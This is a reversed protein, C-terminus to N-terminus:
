KLLHIGPEVRTQDRTADPGAPWPLSLFDKEVNLQVKGQLLDEKRKENWGADWVRVTEDSGESGTWSGSIIKKSDGSFAVFKVYGEHGNFVQLEDGNSVNWVRITGNDSGSVIKTGDPSFSVSRIRDEYGCLISCQEGTIANWVRATGDNSASVIKTNDPSFAVSRICDTHGELVHLEKGTVADWVRVTEDISGSVVKASDPSFAVVAVRNEHGALVCLEAGTLVNWIRATKDDSGSVIKSNDPSFTVSRIYDTHTKLIYIQNGTVTDWVRITGNDSGSVIKAGDPSFSVSRIWDEHGGLICCPEGTIANWVRATGDNSGSVIKTNDPSFAVSRIYHTHGPLVHLEEGTDMNWVRVTKEAGTVAKTGDESFAVCTTNKGDSAKISMCSLEGTLFTELFENRRESEDLNINLLANIVAFKKYIRKSHLREPSHAFNLLISIILHLVVFQYGDLPRAGTSFKEWVDYLRKISKLLFIRGESSSSIELLAKLRSIFSRVDFSEKGETSLSVSLKDLNDCAQEFLDPEINSSEVKKWEPPLHAKFDRGKGDYVSKHIMQGEVIQRGDGLHLRRITGEQTKYSLQRWPYFEALWWFGSLSNTTPKELYKEAKESGESFPKVNLGVIISEHIMWRLAPGYSNLNKNITNGGGIDSHSGSFWVEKTHPKLDLPSLSDGNEKSSPKPKPDRAVGGYVYEPLFKVRCEDLALAHRFYCVHKMGSTTLPLDKCPRVIGVSSVTDWVGVLHIHVDQRSFTTKFRWPMYEPSNEAPIESKSADTSDETQLYLEYAFPIQAANGKEILGVKEIMAALVRVQYAGRSFGFLFIRDGPQYMESLWRYADLLIKEFKTGFALEKVKHFWSKLSPSTPKPYAGIGSNYFTLQTTNKDLRCYLEVINTNRTGFKNSTGDICVVLNRKRGCKNSCTGVDARNPKTTGSKLDATTIGSSQASHPNM